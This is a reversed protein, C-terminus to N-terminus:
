FMGIYNLLHTILQNNLFGEEAKFIKAAKICYPQSYINLTKKKKKEFNLKIDTGTQLCSHWPDNPLPFALNSIEVM